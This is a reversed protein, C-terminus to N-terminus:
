GTLFLHNLFAHNNLSHHYTLSNHTVSHARQKLNCYGATLESKVNSCSESSRFHQPAQSLVQLYPALSMWIIVQGFFPFVFLVSTSLQRLTVVYCTGKRVSIIRSSNWIIICQLLSTFISAFITTFVSSFITLRSSLLASSLRPSFHISDHCSFHLCFDGFLVKLLGFAPPDPAYPPSLPRPHLPPFVQGPSWTYVGCRLRVSLCAMRARCLYRCHHGSRISFCAVRATALYSWSHCGPQALPPSSKM